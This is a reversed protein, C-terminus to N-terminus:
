GNVRVADNQGANHSERKCVDGRFRWPSDDILTIIVASPPTVNPTSSSERARKNAANPKPKDSVIYQSHAMGPETAFEWDKPENGTDYQPNDPLSITIRSPPDAETASRYALTHTVAPAELLVLM